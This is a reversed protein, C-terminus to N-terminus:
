LERTQSMGVQATRVEGPGVELDVADLVRADGYTKGLGSISLVPQPNAM